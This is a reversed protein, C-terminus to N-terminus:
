NAKQQHFLVGTDRLKQAVKHDKTKEDIAEFRKVQREYNQLPTLLCYVVGKLLGEKTLEKGQGFVLGREKNYMVKAKAFDNQTLILDSLQKIGYFDKQRKGIREKAKKLDHVVKAPETLKIREM